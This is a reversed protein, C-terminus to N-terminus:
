PQAEELVDAQGIECQIAFAARKGSTFRLADAEGGLNACTQHSNKINKVLWADAEMLAVVFAEELGQLAQAVQSIGNQNDFM